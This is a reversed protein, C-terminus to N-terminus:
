ESSPPSSSSGPARPSVSMPGRKPVPEPRPALALLESAPPAPPLTFVKLSLLFNIIMGAATGAALAIVPQKAAIPLQWICFAYLGRNVVFGVSNAFMYKLWQRMAPAPVSGAFTWRRNLAWNSSAALVYAVIGAIYLGTAGRLAYVTATDVVFGSLGVLGFRLFQVFV